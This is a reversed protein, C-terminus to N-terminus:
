KKYIKLVEKINERCIPCLGDGGFQVQVACPYCLVAHGCNVLACDIVRECCIICDDDDKTVDKQKPEGEDVSRDGDESSM